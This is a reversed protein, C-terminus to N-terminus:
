VNSLAGNKDNPASGEKQLLLRLCQKIKQRAHFLRTKVTNEPCGQLQAIESLSMEEYFVLHMAERHEESLKAMCDKVGASRQRDAIADFASAEDSAISDQMEDTLEDHGKNIDRYANLIKYRAIGLVWTSFKSTANFREPNKWVEHMTDVVIEEARADDRVQNVAFAFVQRSVAKYLTTFAVEDRKGVRQLLALVTTNDLEM